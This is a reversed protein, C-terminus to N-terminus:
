KLNQSKMLNSFIGTQYPMSQLIGLGSLALTHKAKMEETVTSSKLIDTTLQIGITLFFALVSNCIGLPMDKLDSNSGEYPQILYMESQISVVPRFLVSMLRHYKEPKMNKDLDVFEGFTMDDFNPVLGYEVGHLTFRNILKPTENLVTNLANILYDIDKVKLKNYHKSDISYFIDLAKRNAFDKDAGDKVMSMYKQWNSLKVENIAEPIKVDIKM